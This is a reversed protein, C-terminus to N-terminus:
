GKGFRFWVVHVFDLRPFKEKFVEFEPDSLKIVQFFDELFGQLHHISRSRACINKPM